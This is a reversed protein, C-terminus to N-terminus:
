IPINFFSLVVNWPIHIHHSYHNCFDSLNILQIVCLTIIGFLLVWIFEAIAIRCLCVWIQLTKLGATERTLFGRDSLFLYNIINSILSITRLCDVRIWANSICLFASSKGFPLFALEFIVYYNIINQLMIWENVILLILCTGDMYKLSAFVDTAPLLFIRSISTHTVLPTRVRLRQTVM